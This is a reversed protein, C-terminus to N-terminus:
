NLSPAKKSSACAAKAALCPVTHGCPQVVRGALGPLLHSSEAKRYRVWFPPRFGGSAHDRLGPATAITLQQDVSLTANNGLMMPALWHKVTGDYGSMWGHNCHGCVARVKINALNHPEWHASLEISQHGVVSREAFIDPGVVASNLVEDVWKAIVDEITLRGSPDPLQCFIFTVPDM